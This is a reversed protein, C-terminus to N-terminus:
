RVRGALVARQDTLVVLSPRALLLQVDHEVPVRGEFHVAYREVRGGPREHRDPRLRPPLRAPVSGHERVPIDRGRREIDDLRAVKWKTNQSM